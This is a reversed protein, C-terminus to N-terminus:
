LQYQGQHEVRFSIMSVIAAVLLIVVLLLGTLTGGNGSSPIILPLASKKQKRNIKEVPRKNDYGVFVTSDISERFYYHEKLQTKISDLAHQQTFLPHHYVTDSGSGWLTKGNPVDLAPRSSYWPNKECYESTVMIAASDNIFIVSDLVATKIFSQPAAGLNHASLNHTPDELATIFHEMQLSHSKFAIVKTQAQVLPSLGLLVFLLITKM